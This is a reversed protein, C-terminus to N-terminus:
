TLIILNSNDNAIKAIFSFNKLLTKKINYHQYARSDFSM